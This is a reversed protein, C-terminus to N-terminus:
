YEIIKIIVNNDFLFKNMEDNISTEKDYDEGYYIHTIGSAIILKTCQNCPKHTCYIQSEEISIGKRAAWLIANQEAHIEYKKSWEHHESTHENNWYDCCNVYGKPTGNYGTSLIRDDKVIVAGVKKSVCKSRRSIIKAIDLYEKHKNM